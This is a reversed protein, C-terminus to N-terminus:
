VSTGVFFRAFTSSKKSIVLYKSLFILFFHMKGHKMTLKLRNFRTLDTTNKWLAHSRM